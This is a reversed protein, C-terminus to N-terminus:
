FLFRKVPFYILLMSNKVIKSGSMENPELIIKESMGEPFLASEIKEVVFKQLYQDDGQFLYVPQIQGKEVEM